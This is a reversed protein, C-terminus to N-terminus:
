KGNAAAFNAADAFEIWNGTAENWVFFGDTANFVPSIAQSVVPSALMHFEDTFTHPIYREVINTSSHLTGNDILSATGSADSKLVLSDNVTLDKGANITLKGLPEIVLNKTQYNNSNVIALKTAAITTNTTTDPVGNDWNAGNEWENSVAATFTTNPTALVNITYDEVEGWEANGCPFPNPGNDSDDLRIRM